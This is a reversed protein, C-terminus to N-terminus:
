FDSERPEYFYVAEFRASASLGKTHTGIEVIVGAVESVLSKGAMWASQKQFSPLQVGLVNRHYAVCFKHYNGLLLMNPKMEPSLSELHNRLKLSPQKSGGDNAHFVEITADGLTVYGQSKGLYTVDDREKAVAKIIDPGGGLTWWDDHNGSIMLWPLGRPLQEVVYDRMAEYDHLFLEQPNKHREVPGDEVDGGHVFYDCGQDIAYACFEQLATRQQYKSGFHTCSVVALKIREKGLIEGVDYTLAAPPRPKHVVFGEQELLRMANERSLSPVEITTDQTGNWIAWCEPCKTQPPRNGTYRVARRAGAHDSCLDSM